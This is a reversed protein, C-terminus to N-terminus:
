PNASPRNKTKKKQTFYLGLSPGRCAEMMCVVAEFLHICEEPSSKTSGHHFMFRGRWSSSCTSHPSGSTTCASPWQLAVAHKPVSCATNNWCLRNSSPGNWLCKPNIKLLIEGPDFLIPHKVERTPSSLTRQYYVLISLISDSGCQTLCWMNRFSRVGM